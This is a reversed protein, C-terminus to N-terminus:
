TEIVLLKKFDDIRYFVKRVTERLRRVGNGKVKVVKSIVRDRYEFTFLTGNMYNNLEKVGRLM